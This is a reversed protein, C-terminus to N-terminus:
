AKQAQSRSEFDPSYGHFRPDNPGVHGGQPQDHGAHGNTTSRLFLWTTASGTAMSLADPIPAALVALIVLGVALIVAVIAAAVDNVTVKL